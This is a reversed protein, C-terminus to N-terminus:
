NLAGYGMLPMTKQNDPLWRNMLFEVQRMLIRQMTTAKAQREQTDEIVKVENLMTEYLDAFQDMTTLQGSLFSLEEMKRTSM